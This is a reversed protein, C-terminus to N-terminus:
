LEAALIRWHPITPGSTTSATSIASMNIPRTHGGNTVGAHVDVSETLMCPLPSPIHLLVHLTGVPFDRNLQIDLIHRDCNLRRHLDLRTMVVGTQHIYSMRRM